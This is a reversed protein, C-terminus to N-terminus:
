EFTDLRLQDEETSDPGHCVFCKDSLIPLVERAFDVPVKDASKEAAPLEGGGAVVLGAALVLVNGVFRILLSYKM